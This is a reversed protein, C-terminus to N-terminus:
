DNTFSLVGAGVHKTVRERQQQEDQRIQSESVELQHPRGSAIRVLLLHSLERATPLISRRLLTGVDREIPIEGNLYTLGPEKEVM